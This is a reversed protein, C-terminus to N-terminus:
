SKPEDINENWVARAGMETQSHYSLSVFVMRSGGLDKVPEQEEKTNGIKRGM